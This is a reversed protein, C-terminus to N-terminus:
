ILQLVYGLVQPHPPFQGQVRRGDARWGLREYFARARQNEELVELQCRDVGAASSVAVAADHLQRGIGLRWNRPDVFLHELRGPRASVVGVIAGDQEAVVVSSRPEPTTLRRHWDARVAEDPFPYLDPPFVHAYALLATRRHLAFM